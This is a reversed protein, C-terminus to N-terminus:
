GSFPNFVEVGAGEVDAINRTVLMLRRQSDSATADNRGVLRTRDM